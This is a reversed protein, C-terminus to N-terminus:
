ASGALRGIPFIRSFGWFVLMTIAFLVVGLASAAGWDFYLAANQQIKMSITTVRGGGLFQPTVYFGLCLVFVMVTGAALGPVTLPLFVRRFATAPTAGLSAAARLLDRDVARINAYLPLVFFPIMIHLMGVVTGTFNHVLQLPEEIVGWSTLLSNIIGRRQLLVLWAYTRVLLATWFPVLVLSLCLTAVRPPMLAIAYAVPYGLLVALLTVLASLQLTTTFVSLYSPEEIMRAYNAFTFGTEDYLSLWFLWGVPIFLLAGLLLFAPVTLGILAAREHRADARIAAANLGAAENM